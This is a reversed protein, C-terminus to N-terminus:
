CPAQSFLGPPTDRITVRRRRGEYLFSEWRSLLDRGILGHFGQLSRPLPLRAVALEPVAAMSSSPFELRVWYLETEVSGASTEVRARVYLQPTLHNLVSPVLSSRGSGTDIMLHMRTAAPIQRGLLRFVQETEHPLLVQAPLVLRDQVTSRYSGM